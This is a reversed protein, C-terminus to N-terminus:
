SATPFTRLIRSPVQFRPNIELFLASGGDHLYDIGCVGRYGNKQLVKGIRKSQEYISEELEQNISEDCFFSGCFLLCDDIRDIRQRSPAFVIVEKSTILVHSNISPIEPLCPSALYVSGCELEDAIREANSNDIYYTGNGGSSLNKQLIFEEYHPFCNRLTAFDCEEKALVTCPPIPCYNAAWIRTITKNNLWKLISPSNRCIVYEDLSPFLACIRNAVTNSYFIFKALHDSAAIELMKSALLTYYENSKRAVGSNVLAENRKDNSGYYTISYEFVDMSASIDVERKGIWYLM